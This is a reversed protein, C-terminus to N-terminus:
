ASSGRAAELCLDAVLAAAEPRAMARARCAMALRREPARGLDLLLAALKGADLEREPLLVAAGNDCLWRANATQHDDVAYPYPVLIAPLGAAALEAVTLAGARCLVLDAWGYAEAMDEIFPTVTAGVGAAAYQARVTEYEREGAQHRISVPMEANIRQVALPTVSNLRHAGQSGGVVLLRLPGSRGALRSQPDVLACIERRVPNGTVRVKVGPRFSEPFALLVRSALYSLCRNTLGAVANQEHILLPIRLMWAALGGPGSAFGGMGLAVVPRRRRLIQLAEILARGLRLPAVLWHLWGKGRLGAVRITILPLGSAPVLTSELGEDTGLWLVAYGRGRLEEAVAMAPFVHGGTGGAM